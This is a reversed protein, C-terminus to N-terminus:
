HFRPIQLWHDVGHLRVPNPSHLARVPVAPSQRNDVKGIIFLNRLCVEQKALVDSGINLSKLRKTIDTGAHVQFLNLVDGSMFNTDTSPAQTRPGRASYTIDRTELVHFARISSIYCPSASATSARQLPPALRLPLTPNSPAQQPSRRPVNQAHRRHSQGM